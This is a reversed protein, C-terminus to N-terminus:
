SSSKSSSKSSKSDFRSSRESNNMSIEHRIDTKPNIM